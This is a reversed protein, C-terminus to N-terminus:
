GKFWAVVMYWRADGGIMGDPLSSATDPVQFIAPVNTGMDFYNSVITGMIDTQKEVKITNEAYFVGMVDLGAADMEINNPTMIGLVNNPFSNNGNTILNVDVQANGTVLISGQGSYTITKDAGSTAMNLDNNGDVYVIGSITMNGSGDMSISGQGNSYSFTSTPTIADLENTLILANARLYAQYSAYGPYPDSLSPFVVADGLDYANSTGNDSFVGATGQNGGFGDTVYVGTVTEKTSNGPVDAEGVSASGSVGVLGKKVRLEANLTQVTEGNYVVTPLAPVKDVLAAPVGNYNNGVIEATGGLDAAYDGASLGTGLILVSGRIDVIGNIMTGSAGAGAFIAYEWPSLSIMRVYVKITHNVGGVTGTSRIWVDDNAGLVNRLEVVYSGENFSTSSYPITYFNATDPGIAYGNVDGDSWSATGSANIFDQKLDYLGREIGAEAIHFAVTSLRQRESFRSENTVLLLFSAGIGLLIVIVFYTILLLSGRNNNLSRFFKAKKQRMM